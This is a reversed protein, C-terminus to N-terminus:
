PPAAATQLSLDRSRCCRTVELHALHQSTRSLPTFLPTPLSPNTKDGHVAARSRPHAGAIRGGREEPTGPPTESGGWGKGVERDLLRAGGHSTGWASWLALLPKPVHGPGPSGRRLWLLPPQPHRPWM